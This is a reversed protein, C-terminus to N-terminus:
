RLDSARQERGVPFFEPQDNEINVPGAFEAVQGLKTLAFRYEDVNVVPVSVTIAFGGSPEQQPAPAQQPSQTQPQSQPFVHQACTLSLVLVLAGCVVARIPTPKM